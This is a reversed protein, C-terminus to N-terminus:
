PKDSNFTDVAIQWSGDSQKKRIEVFRGINEVLGPGGEPGITM